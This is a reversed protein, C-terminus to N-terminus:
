PLNNNNIRRQNFFFTFKILFDKKFTFTIIFDKKDFLTDFFIKFTVGNFNIKNRKDLDFPIVILTM